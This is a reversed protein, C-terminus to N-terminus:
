KELYLWIRFYKLHWCIFKPFPTCNLSYCWWWFIKEKERQPENLKRSSGNTKPSEWSNDRWHNRRGWEREEKKQSEKHSMEWIRRKEKWKEKQAESNYLTRLIFWQLKKVAFLSNMVCRKIGQQFAVFKYSCIHIHNM